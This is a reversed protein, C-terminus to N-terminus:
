VFIHCMEALHRHNSMILNGEVDLSLYDIFRPAKADDLVTTLSVTTMTVYTGRRSRDTKRVGHIGSAGGMGGFIAGFVGGSVFKVRSGSSPGVLVNRKTCIPWHYSLVRYNM